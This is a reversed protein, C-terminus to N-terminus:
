VAEAFTDDNAHTQSLDLGSQLTGALTYDVQTGAETPPASPAGVDAMESAEIDRLERKEQLCHSQRRHTEQMVHIEVVKDHIEQLHSPPLDDGSPDIHTDARVYEDM